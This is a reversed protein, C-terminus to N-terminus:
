VAAVVALQQEIARDAARKLAKEKQVKPTDSVFVSFDRQTVRFLDMIKSIATKSM